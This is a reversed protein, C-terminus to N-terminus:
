KSCTESNVVPTLAQRGPEAGGSGRSESLLSSHHTALSLGSFRGFSQYHHGAGSAIQESTNGTDLANPLFVSGLGQQLDQEHIHRVQKLHDLLLSEVAAPLMTVRDKQGKGDRVTIQRAGLDIDKVRLRLAELLRLGGGYLLLTALKPTGSMKALFARVEDRTLVVPLRKPKKAWVVGEIQDLDRGLVAQYLFLIGSLAQNQTSAAVNEAV